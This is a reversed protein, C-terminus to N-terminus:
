TGEDQTDIELPAHMHDAAAPKSLVRYYCFSVLITVAAISTIMFVWGLPTMTAIHEVPASTTSPVPTMLEILNM